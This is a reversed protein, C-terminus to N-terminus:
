RCAIRKWLCAPDKRQALHGKRVLREMMTRVTTQAWGHSERLAEVVDRVIVEKSEWVVSMIAWEAPTLDPNKKAM